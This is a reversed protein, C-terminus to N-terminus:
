FPAKCKLLQKLAKHVRKQADVQQNHLYDLAQERASQPKLQQAFELAMQLDHYHGIHQQAAQLQQMLKIWDTHELVSSIANLSYRLRKIQKRLRHQEGSPLHSFQKAQKCIRKYLKQLPPLLTNTLKIAKSQETDLYNFALIQLLLLQTEPCSLQESLLSLNAHEPAAIQLNPVVCQLQLFIDEEFVDADRAQGLVSLLLRVQPLWHKPINPSLQAFSKILSHIQRLAVRAQHRHAVSDIGDAVVAFNPLLHELQAALMQQLAVDIPMKPALCLAKATVPATANRGLSLLHGREAKSRVDLWLGYPQIWQQAFQLLQEVRGQKLEFEVESLPLTRGQSRIEGMDVCLEILADQFQVTKVYRQVDTEFQMQLLADDPLAQELLKQIQPQDAYLALNVKPARKRQGLAIDCEIRELSNKGKGKFTQVWHQDEQRLRLAMHQQALTREATDFYQARLQIPDPQAIAQILQQQKEIPLQFKLEIELM